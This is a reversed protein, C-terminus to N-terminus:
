NWKASSVCNVRCWCNIEPWGEGTGFSFLDIFCTNWQGSTRGVMRCWSRAMLVDSCQLTSAQVRYCGDWLCIRYSRQSTVLYANSKSERRRMCQVSCGDCSSVAHLLQKTEVSAVRLEVARAETRRHLRHLAMQEDTAFRLVHATRVRYFYPVRYWCFAVFSRNYPRWIPLM